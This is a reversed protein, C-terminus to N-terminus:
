PLLIILYCRRQIEAAYVLRAQTEKEFVAELKDLLTAYNANIQIKQQLITSGMQRRMNEIQRKFDDVTTQLKELGAFPEPIETGFFKKSDKPPPYQTPPPQPRSTEPASERAKSTFMSPWELVAFGPKFTTAAVILFGLYPDYIL